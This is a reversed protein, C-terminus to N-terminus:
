GGAARAADARASGLPVLLRSLDEAKKMDGTKYTLSLYNAFLNYYYEVRVEHPGKVLQVTALDHEHWGGKARTAVLRGDVYLRGQGDNTRIGLTCPGDAPLNIRGELVLAYGLAPAGHVHSSFRAMFGRRAPSLPAFDPMAEFRGAVPPLYLSYRVAPAIHEFQRRQTYGVPRGSEDFLRALV